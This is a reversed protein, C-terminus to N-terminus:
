EADETDDAGADRRTEEDPLEPPELARVLLRVPLTKRLEPWSLSSRTGLAAFVLVAVRVAIGGTAFPTTVVTVLLNALVAVALVVSMTRVPADYIRNATAEVARQSASGRYTREVRDIVWDLVRLVPGVTWTERLDIVVVEPEPEATLWRYLYSHRTWRALASGTRHLTSDAYWREVSQEARHTAQVLRSDRFAAVLAAAVIVATRRVGATEASRRVRRLCELTRSTERVGRQTSETAM